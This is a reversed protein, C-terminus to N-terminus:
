QLLWDTWGVNKGPNTPVPAPFDAAYFYNLVHPEWTDDGSAPYHCEDHLWSAARLLAQDSWSWVDYGARSLIVAQALAGQLAEWVYNEKPPPWLFGGARRQDDPLVGDISHGDRTAGRPNIGVPHAADAQWALDGYSFGAYVGREGLWGRFVQACRALDAQDDLYLAVAARSAGAHTGWNNPRDEHTSILTMGSLSETRCRQLWARFRTDESGPLGVLDAALVYGILNRGLALTRGGLETDIAAMCADIVDQRYGDDGTRAFVLAKALVRVDTDDDQNSVDPTGTARNAESLLSNWASGSMALAAVERSSTWIGQRNPDFARVYDTRMLSDGGNPGTVTLRVSYVGPTVYTHAPDSQSSSAGDGFSWTWATITGTSRDEFAVTLPADGTNGVAAFDATPAGTEGGGGGGGGGGAGGGSGSSGCGAALLLALWGTGRIGTRMGRKM